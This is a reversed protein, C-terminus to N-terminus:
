LMQLGAQLSTRRALLRGATHRCVLRGVRIPYYLPYLSDPLPFLAWELPTPRFITDFWYFARDVLSEMSARFLPDLPMHQGATTDVLLSRNLITEALKSSCVDNEIWEGIGGPLTVQFLRQVLRLSVRIMRATGFSGARSQIQQWDMAPSQRILVALDMLWGLRSWNHKAQHSCAFLLQNEISLTRIPRQAIFVQNTAEWATEAPPSFSYDPPFLRWHIEVQINRTRNYLAMECWNKQFRTLQGLTLGFQAEFGDAGLLTIVQSVAETPVLIDLDVFERGFPQGYLQQSLVPGKFALARIGHGQLSEVIQFLQGTLQMIRLTHAHLRRRFEVVVSEPLTVAVHQLLQHILCPALGHRSALNAAKLFDVPESVAQHIEGM